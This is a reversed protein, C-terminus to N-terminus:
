PSHGKLERLRQIVNTAEDTNTNANALYLKYTELRKTRKTSAGPSKASATPSRSRTPSRNSCRKTIPARLMSSAATSAPWPAISSRRLITRKFPSCAPSHTLPTMTPKPSSPFTAGILFGPRTMPHSGSNTTLLPSRTPSCAMHWIPKCSTTTCITTPQISPSKPKSCNREGRWTM